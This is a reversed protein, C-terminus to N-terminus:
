IMKVKFRFSQLIPKLHNDKESLHVSFNSFERRVPYIKRLMDFYGAQENLKYNSIERLSMDDKEIDYVSSFLNSLKEEDSKGKSLQLDKREIPPLKPQWAPNINLFKCLSYYIMKTGNVKGELSYGAIHATAVKTKGLLNINISPEDEWVDLILNFGKRIAEDSLSTNNIVAGRSTNIITANEKIMKLNNENLLHFTKDIGEFSLPVHLTIIDAKLIEDLDVYNSGIGKRELPPDNKLVKM